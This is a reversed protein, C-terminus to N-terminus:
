VKLGTKDFMGSVGGPNQDRPPSLRHKKLWTGTIERDFQQRKFADLQRRQAV